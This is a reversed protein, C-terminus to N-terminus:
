IEYKFDKLASDMFSGIAEEANFMLMILPIFVLLYVLYCLVKNPKRKIYLILLYIVLYYLFLLGTAVSFIPMWAGMFQFAVTLVLLIIMIVLVIKKIINM